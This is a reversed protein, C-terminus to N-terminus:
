AFNTNYKFAVLSLILMCMMLCIYGWQSLTPIPEIVCESLPDISSTIECKQNWGFTQSITVLTNDLNNFKYCSDTGTTISENGWEYIIEDIPSLNNFVTENYMRHNILPSNNEYTICLSDALCYPTFSFTTDISYRVKPHILYDVDWTFFEGSAYWTNDGTWYWFGLEEDQGDGANYDNTIIGIPLNSNTMIAVLYDSSVNVPVDFELCQRMLDINSPSYENGIRLTQQALVNGPVSDQQAEFVICTIDASDQDNVSNIGAFFEIGLIEIPQPADYFQAYGAFESPVNMTVALFDTAKAQPYILTDICIQGSLGSLFFFFIFVGYLKKSIM